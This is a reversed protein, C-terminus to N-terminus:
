PSPTGHLQVKKKQVEAIRKSKNQIKTLDEQKLKAAKRFSLDIHKFFRSVQILMNQVLTPAYGKGFPYAPWASFEDM